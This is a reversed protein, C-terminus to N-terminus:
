CPRATSVPLKLQQHKCNGTFGPEACTHATTSSRVFEYRTEVGVVFISEAGPALTNPSGPRLTTAAQCGGGCDLVSVSDATDNRIMTTTACPDGMRTVGWVGLVLSLLGIAAVGTIVGARVWSFKSRPGVSAPPPPLAGPLDAM